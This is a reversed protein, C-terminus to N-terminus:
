RFGREEKARSYAGNIEAMKADSGGPKDPHWIDAMSRYAAKIEDAGASSGVNLIITWHKESSPLALFGSLSAKVMHKAGWREVGRLAEITKAIAQVNNEVRLWRDCPIAVPDSGRMFYAVVGPDIPNEKGLTCNSSLVLNTGGFLRVEEKLGNLASSLTARMKAKERMKAETRPWGLPWQLPYAQPTM